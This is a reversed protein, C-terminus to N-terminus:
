NSDESQRKLHADSGAVFELLMGRKSEGEGHRRVRLVGDTEDRFMKKAKTETILAADGFHEQVIGLPDALRTKVIEIEQSTMQHSKRTFYISIAIDACTLAYLLFSCVLTFLPAKPLRSVLSYTHTAESLTSAAAVVGAGLGIGIRSLQQSLQSAYASSNGSM